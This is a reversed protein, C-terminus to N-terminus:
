GSTCNDIYAFCFLVANRYAFMSLSFQLFPGCISVKEFFKVDQGEKKFSNRRTLEQSPKITKMKTSAQELYQILKELLNYAFRKEVSGRESESKVRETSPETKEPSGRSGDGGRLSRQKM